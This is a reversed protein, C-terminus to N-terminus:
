AVRLQNLLLVRQDSNTCLAVKSTKAYIRRRLKTLSLNRAKWDIENWQILTGIKVLYESSEQFERLQAVNIIERVKQTPKDM